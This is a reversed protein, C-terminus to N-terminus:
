KLPFLLFARIIMQQSDSYTGRWWFLLTLSLCSMSQSNTPIFFFFFHIYIKTTIRSTVPLFRAEVSPCHFRFIFNEKQLSCNGKSYMFPTELTTSQKQNKFLIFCKALHMSACQMLYHCCVYCCVNREKRLLFCTKWKLGTHENASVQQESTDAPKGRWGWHLLTFASWLDM